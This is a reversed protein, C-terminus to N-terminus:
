SESVESDSVSGGSPPAVVDISYLRHEYSDDMLRTVHRACSETFYDYFPEIGNWLVFKAPRWCNFIPGIYCCREKSVGLSRLSPPM